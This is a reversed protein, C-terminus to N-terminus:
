PRVSLRHRTDPETDRDAGGLWTHRDGCLADSIAPHAFPRSVTPERFTQENDDGISAAWRIGFFSLLGTALAIGATAILGIFWHTYYAAALTELLWRWRWRGRIERWWSLPRLLPGLAALGGLFRRM